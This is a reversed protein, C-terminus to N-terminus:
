NIAIPKEINLLIKTATIATGLIVLYNRTDPPTQTITGDVDLYLPKNTQWAWNSDEFEGSIVVSGTTNAAIAQNTLGVIKFITDSDNASALVFSGQNNLAVIKLASLSEFATYTNSILYNGALSVELNDIRNDVYDTVQTFTAM